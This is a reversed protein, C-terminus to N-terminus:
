SNGVVKEEVFLTFLFNTPRTHWENEFPMYLLVSLSPSDYWCSEYLNRWGILSRCASKGILLNENNTYM